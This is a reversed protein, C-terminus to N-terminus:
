CSALLRRIQDLAHAPSGGGALLRGVAVPLRADEGSVMLRSAIQRALSPDRSLAAAGPSAVRAQQASLGALELVSVALRRRSRESRVQLSRRAAARQVAGPAGPVVFSELEVMRDLAAQRVASSSLWVLVLVLAVVSLLGLVVVHTELAVALVAGAAVVLAYGALRDRRRDIEAVVGASALYGRRSAAEFSSEVERALISNLGFHM